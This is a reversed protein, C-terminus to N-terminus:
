LGDLRSDAIPCFCSPSAQSLLVSPSFLSEFTTRQGGSTRQPVCGCECEDCMGHIIYIHTHTYM